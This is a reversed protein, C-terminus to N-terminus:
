SENEKEGRLKVMLPASKNFGKIAMWLGIALEWFFIPVVAIASFITINIGFITLIAVSLQLPFGILGAAPLLRPVLRSRYMLTGLLLANLAPM